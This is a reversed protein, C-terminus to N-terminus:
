RYKQCLQEELCTYVEENTFSSLMIELDENSVNIDKEMWFCEEFPVGREYLIQPIGIEDLGFGYNSVIKKIILQRM